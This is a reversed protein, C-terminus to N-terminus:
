ICITQNIVKVDHVWLALHLPCAGPGLTGPPNLIEHGNFIPDASASPTVAGSLGALGVSICVAALLKRV